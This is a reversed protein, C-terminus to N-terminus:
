KVTITVTQVTNAPLEITWPRVDPNRPPQWAATTWSKGGNESYVRRYVPARMQGNALAIEATLPDKTRNVMMLVFSKRGKAARIAYEVKKDAVLDKEDVVTKEASGKATAVGASAKKQLKARMAPKVRMAYGCALLDPHTKEALQFYRESAKEAGKPVKLAVTKADGKGALDVAIRFSEAHLPLSMAASALLVVAFSRIKM